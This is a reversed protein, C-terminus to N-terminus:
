GIDDVEVNEIDIINIPKLRKVNKTPSVKMKIVTSKFSKGINAKDVKRQRLFNKKAKEYTWAIIGVGAEKIVENGLTEHFYKLTLLMGADTYNYPPKRFEGLQKFMMGTPKVGHKKPNYEKDPFQDFGAGKPPKSGYLRELYRYLNDWDEAKKKAEKEMKTLCDPCYWRKKKEHFVADTKDNTSSCYPCKVSRGKSKDNTTM